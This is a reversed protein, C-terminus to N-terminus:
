AGRRAAKPWTFRFTAGQEPVSEVSVRGGRSEVVKKVVSLGVGTGELKDRAALTQFMGWIREQYKPSIGPGDDRVAFEFENGADRWSIDVKADARGASSYKVANSILNMFVQQLPIREAQLVPMREAVQITVVSPPAILEIVDRLLAATDVTETATTSRGARSYALIGDILAEMRHVRKQLLRLHEASEGSLADAADEEIWHALNGIGRLPAKLDHSAVYAFQDLERYAETVARTASEAAERADEAALLAAQLDRNAQRLRENLQALQASRRTAEAREAEEAALRRAQEEAERRATLDRTVKAFGILKGAADRMPTIVVNAWYRTGDKRIRWNEDEFRGERAAVKLEHQPFGSAVAEEPYFTTFSRGLIEEATYGKIREAGDNWSTVRGEPDLLLIAYDIVSHVLLRFRQESLRLAEEAARRESVERTVKAFGTAEGRGDRIASIVVNAWFQSGDKRVRWGEDVVRGERAAIELKRSPKGAAVDDPPYLISFHKGVIEEASYGKIRQAGPNWSVVVGANDLAVIAYDTVSQVLRRYVIDRPTADM